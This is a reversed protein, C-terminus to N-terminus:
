KYIKVKSIEDFEEIKENLEETFNVYAQKLQYVFEERMIQIVRENEPPM